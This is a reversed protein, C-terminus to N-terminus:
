GAVTKEIAAQFAQEAKTQMETLVKALVYQGPQAPVVWGSSGEMMIRFTMYSSRKQKGSSTDFRVMGAYRKQETKSLGLDRLQQKMLRDGWQYMSGTVMAAKRTQTNSAFPNQRQMKKSAPSMGTFPSLNTIQGAPRQIKADVRSGTLAKAMAYVSPSMENKSGPVGHRFPIVLFRKGEKTRRVKMSTDLMKKLDRPPRGTEIDAAYKYDSYIFASFAGTMQWQISKAYADKEGSWLKAAYIQEQWKRATAAAVAKVAQRMLPMVKENVVGALELRQALDFHIDYKLM